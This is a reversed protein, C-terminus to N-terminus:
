AGVTFRKTSGIQRNFSDIDTKNSTNLDNWGDILEKLQDITL